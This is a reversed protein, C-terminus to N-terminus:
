SQEGEPLLSKLFELEAEALPKLIAFEKPPYQKNYQKRNTIAPFTLQYRKLTEFFEEYPSGNCGTKGTKELVPCGVCGQPYLFKQCLDCNWPGMDVATNSVIGEWKAISGKLAELTDKNM